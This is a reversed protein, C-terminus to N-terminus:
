GGVKREGKTDSEREIVKYITTRRRTRGFKDWLKEIIQGVRYGQNHPKLIYEKEKHSVRSWDHSDLMKVLKSINSQRSSAHRFLPLKEAFRLDDLILRSILLRFAKKTQNNM